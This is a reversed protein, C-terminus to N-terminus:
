YNVQQNIAHYTILSLYDPFLPVPVKKFDFFYGTGMKGRRDNVIVNNSAKGRGRDNGSGKIDNGRFRSDM